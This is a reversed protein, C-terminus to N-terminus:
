QLYHQKVATKIFQAWELAVDYNMHVRDRFKTSISKSQNERYESDRLLRVAISTYHAASQAVLDMHGMQQYLGLSYRGRCM